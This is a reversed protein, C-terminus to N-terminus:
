PRWRDAAELDAQIQDARSAAACLAWGFFGIVVVAVTVAAWIM